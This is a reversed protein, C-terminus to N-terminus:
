WGDGEGPAQARAARSRQGERHASREGGRERKGERRGRHREKERKRERQKERQREERPVETALPTRTLMGQAPRAYWPGSPTLTTCMKTSPPLRPHPQHAAVKFVDSETSSRASPTNSKVNHAEGQVQSQTFLKGKGRGRERERERGRKRAGHGGRVATDSVGLRRKPSRNRERVRRRGVGLRTGASAQSPQFPQSFTPSLNKKKAVTVRGSHGWGVRRM